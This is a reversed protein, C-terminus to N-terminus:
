SSTSAPYSGHLNLDEGECETIDVPQAPGTPGSLPAPARSGWAAEGSARALAREAAAQQHRVYRDTTSTRRHGAMYAAGVLHGTDVLETIREHRLDYGTFRRARDPDLVARAAAALPSRYDHRGFILGSAPAISELAAIAPATLPVERGWRSKDDTRDITLSSRGPAWHEPVRLADLTTPRLSTELMVVFRARVPHRAGLRPKSWEPLLDVIARSEEPSLPTPDGRRRKPHPTGVASRPVSPVAPARSMVGMEVCWALLRRLASLEKRVTAALVVRLRARSYSAIMPETLQAATDFYPQWHARTYLKWLELTLPDVEGEIDALWVAALADLRM